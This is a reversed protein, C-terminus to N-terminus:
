RSGKKEKELRQPHDWNALKDTINSNQAPFFFIPSVFPLLSLYASNSNANYTSSSAHPSFFHPLQWLARRFLVPSLLPIKLPIGELTNEFSLLMDQAIKSHNIKQIGSQKKSGFGTKFSSLSASCSQFM